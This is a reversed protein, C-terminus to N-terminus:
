HGVIRLVRGDVNYTVFSVHGLLWNYTLHCLYQLCRNQLLTTNHTNPTCMQAPEFTHRQLLQFHSESSEEKNEMKNQLTTGRVPGVTGAPSAPWPAGKGNRMM